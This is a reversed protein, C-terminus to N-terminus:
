DHENVLFKEVLFQFYKEIQMLAADFQVIRRTMIFKINHYIVGCLVSRIIQDKDTMALIKLKMENSRVLILYKGICIQISCTFIYSDVSIWFMDCCNILGFM